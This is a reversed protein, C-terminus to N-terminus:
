AVERKLMRDLRSTLALVLAYRILRRRDRRAERLQADAVRQALHAKWESGYQEAHASDLLALISAPIDVM